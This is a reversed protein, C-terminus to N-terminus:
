PGRAPPGKSGRKMVGRRKNEQETNNRPASKLDKLRPAHPLSYEISLQIGTACEIPQPCGASSSLEEDVEIPPAESQPPKVGTELDREVTSVLLNVRVRRDLEDDCREVRLRRTVPCSKLLDFGGLDENIVGM